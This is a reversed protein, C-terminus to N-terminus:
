GAWHLERHSQHLVRFELKKWLILSHLPQKWSHLNQLIVMLLVSSQSFTPYKLQGRDKYIRCRSLLLRLTLSSHLWLVVCLAPFDWRAQSCQWGLLFSFDWLLPLELSTELATKSLQSTETGLGLCVQRTGGFIHSLPFNGGFRHTHSKKQLKM